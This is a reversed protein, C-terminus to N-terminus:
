KGKFNEKCEEEAEKFGLEKESERESEDGEEKGVKANKEYYKTCKDNERRLNPVLRACPLRKITVDVTRGLLMYDHKHTEAELTNYILEADEIFQEVFQVFTKEILGPADEMPIFKYKGVFNPVNKDVLRPDDEGGIM